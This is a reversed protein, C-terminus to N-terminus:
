EYATFILMDGASPPTDGATPDITISNPGDNSGAVVTVTCGVIEAGVASYLRWDVFEPEFGPVFWVVMPEAVTLDNFVFRGTAQRLNAARGESISIWIDAEESASVEPSRAGIFDGGPADATFITVAPGDVAIALLNLVGVNIQAALSALTDALTEGITIPIEVGGGDGGFEYTTGGITVTDGPSPNDEPLWVLQGVIGADGVGDAGAPGAAGDAGPAGPEGPDGKGGISFKGTTM